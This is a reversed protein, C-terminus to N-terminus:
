SRVESPFFEAIWRDFIARGVPCLGHQDESFNCTPCDIGHDFLPGAQNILRRSECCAPSNIDAIGKGCFLCQDETEDHVPCTRYALPSEACTCETIEACVPIPGSV